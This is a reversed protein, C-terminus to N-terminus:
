KTSHRKEYDGYLIDELDMQDDGINILYFIISYIVFVIIFCILIQINSLIFLILAVNLVTVLFSGAMALYAYFLATLLRKM